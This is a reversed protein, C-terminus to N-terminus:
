PRVFQTANLKSGDVLTNACFKKIRISSIPFKRRTIKAVVDFFRGVLFGIGYPIRLSPASQGKFRYVETVLTNMDFDPTDVYNFVDIGEWRKNLMYIIFSVVNGVYSMSKRNRGDGIMLFKGSYIQNLLNYVNGRNGEGFIVSPRLILASRGEGKGIWEQLITEAEWKSRGYDNFPDVHDTERLPTSIDLGYVAVTSTFIIRRVGYQDMAALVNRMGQVNVDFYLSAPTVDDRHEAALLVVTDIGQMYHMFSDPERVDMRHTISSFLSSDVKDLNVVDWAPQLEQILRSGVFGSGGIVLCKM